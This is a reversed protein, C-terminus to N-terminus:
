RAQPSAGAPQNIITTIPKLTSPKATVATICLMTELAASSDVCPRVRPATDDKFLRIATTAGTIPAANSPKTDCRGWPSQRM